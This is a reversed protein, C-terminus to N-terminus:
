GRECVCSLEIGHPKESGLEQDELDREPGDEERRGGRV